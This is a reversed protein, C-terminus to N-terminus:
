PLSYIPNGYTDCMDLYPSQGKGALGLSLRVTGNTDYLRLCPHGTPLLTITFCAENAKLHTAIGYPSVTTFQDRRCLTLVAEHEDALLVGRFKGDIRKTPLRVSQVNLKDTTIISSGSIDPAPPAPPDPPFVRSGLMGSLFSVVVCVALTVYDRM